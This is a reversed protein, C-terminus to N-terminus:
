DNKNRANIWFRIELIHAIGSMALFLAIELLDGQTLAARLALVLCAGAAIGALIAALHASGSMLKLLVVAEIVLIMLIIWAIAGSQFLANLTM